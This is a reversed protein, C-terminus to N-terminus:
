VDTRRMVCYFCDLSLNLSWTRLLILWLEQRQKVRMYNEGLNIVNHEQIKEMVLCIKFGFYSFFVFLQHIVYCQTMYM